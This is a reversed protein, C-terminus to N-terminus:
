LIKSNIKLYIKEIDYGTNYLRIIETIEDKKIGCIKRNASNDRKDLWRLNKYRNDNRIKNIHDVEWGHEKAGFFVEAIIRHSRFTKNKNKNEDLPIKLDILLYGEKQQRQKLIRNTKINRIEGDSSVEYNYDRFQKWIKM